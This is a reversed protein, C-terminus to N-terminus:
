LVRQALKRSFGSGLARSTSGSGEIGFLQSTARWGASTQGRAARRPERQSHKESFGIM